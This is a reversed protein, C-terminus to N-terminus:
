VDLTMAHVIAVGVPTRKWSIWRTCMKGSCDYASSNHREMANVADKIEEDTWDLWDALGYEYMSEGDKRYYFRSEERLSKALPDHCSKLDYRIQRKLNPTPEFGERLFDYYMKVFDKTIM